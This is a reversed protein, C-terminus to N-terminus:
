PQKPKPKLKEALERARQLHKQNEQNEKDQNIGEELVSCAEEAMSRDRTAEALVLLAHGRTDLWNSRRRAFFNHWSPLHETLEVMERLRDVAQPSVSGPLGATDEDYEYCRFSALNNIANIAVLPDRIEVEGAATRSGEVVKQSNEIAIRRKEPDKTKEWLTWNVYGSLGLFRGDHPVKQIARTLFVAADGHQNDENAIIAQYYLIEAADKDLGSARVLGRAKKLMQLQKDKKKGRFAIFARELYLELSDPFQESLSQAITSAQTYDMKRELAKLHRLQRDLDTNTLSRHPYDRFAGAGLLFYWIVNRLEEFTLYGFHPLQFSVVTRKGREPENKRERVPYVIIAPQGHEKAEHMEVLQAGLDSLDFIARECQSLITLDQDMTEHVLIERADYPIIPTFLKEPTSAETVFEAIKRLTPMFDYQGGVFVKGKKLIRHATRPM